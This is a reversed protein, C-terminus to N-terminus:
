REKLSSFERDASGFSSGRPNRLFVKFPKVEMKAANRSTVDLGRNAPSNADWGRFPVKEDPM